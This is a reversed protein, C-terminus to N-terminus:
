ILERIEQEEHEEEQHNKEVRKRKKVWLLNNTIKKFLKEESRELYTKNAFFSKMYESIRELEEVPQMLIVFLKFAPDKMLEMYCQEFEEKCWLSNVYEQSMVVIASNSNQIANRINWMIDWAAKFDRRHLCLKFAPDCKEELKTRITNEAFDQDVGNYEYCVFADYEKTRTRYQETNQMARVSRSIIQILIFIFLPVILLPLVITLPNLNPMKRGHSNGEFCKPIKYWGGSYMCTFTSSGEMHFTENVCEYKVKSKARYSGNQQNSNMIKANKINPPPQCTVPEYFCPITDNTTPLYDCNKDDSLIANAKKLLNSKFLSGDFDLKRFSSWISGSCAEIFERCPEKCPYIVQGKVSNCRPFLVHCLLERAYKHCLKGNKSLVLGFIPSIATNKIQPQWFTKNVLGILNPFSTYTYFQHCNFFGDDVHPTKTCTTKNTQGFITFNFSLGRLSPRVLKLCHYGFSFGYHRPKYDQIMKNSNETRYSSYHFREVHIKKWM